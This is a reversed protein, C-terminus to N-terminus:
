SSWSTPTMSATMKQSSGILSIEVILDSVLKVSEKRLMRYWGNEMLMRKGFPPCGPVVEDLLEKRDGIESVIYQTFYDRHSDNIKNLSRDAHPWTPDKQL